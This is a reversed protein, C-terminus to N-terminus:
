KKDKWEPCSDTPLKSEVNPLPHFYCLGRIIHGKIALEKKISYYRMDNYKLQTITPGSYFQCEECTKM